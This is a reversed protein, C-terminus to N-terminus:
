AVSFRNPEIDMVTIMSENRLYKWPDDSTDFTCDRVILNDAAIWALYEPRSGAPAVCGPKWMFTCDRILLKPMGEFVLTNGPEAVWTQGYVEGNRAMEMILARQDKTAALLTGPMVAAAALGAIGRILNRRNMEVTM